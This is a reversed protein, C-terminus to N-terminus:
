LSFHNVMRVWRFFLDFIENNAKLAKQVIEFAPPNNGRCKKPSTDAERRREPISSKM